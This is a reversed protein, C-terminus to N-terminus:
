QTSAGQVSGIRNMDRATQDQMQEWQDRTGCIREGRTRLRSESRRVTRCIVRDADDGADTQQQEAPAAETAPAEAVPTSPVAEPASTDQAFAPVTLFIASVILASAIRM